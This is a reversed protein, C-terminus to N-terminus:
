RTAGDDKATAAGLSFEIWHHVSKDLVPGLFRNLRRRLELSRDPRITDMLM